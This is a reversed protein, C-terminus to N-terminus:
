VVLASHLADFMERLEWTAIPDIEMRLHCVDDDGNPTLRVFFAFGDGVPEANLTLPNNRGPTVAASFRGGSPARLYSLMRAAFDAAEAASLDATFDATLCSSWDATVQWSDECTRTLELWVNDSGLRIRPQEM